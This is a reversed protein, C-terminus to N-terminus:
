FNKIDNYISIIANDSEKYFKIEDFHINLINYITGIHNKMIPDSYITIREELDEININSNIFRIKYYYIYFILTAVKPSAFYKNINVCFKCIGTESVDLSISINQNHQLESYLVYDFLEWLLKFINIPSKCRNGLIIRYDIKGTDRNVERSLRFSFDGNNDYFIIFRNFIVSFSEGDENTLIYSFDDSPNITRLRIYVDEPFKYVKNRALKKELPEKNIISLFVGSLCDIYLHNLENYVEEISEKNVIDFNTCYMTNASGWDSIKIM